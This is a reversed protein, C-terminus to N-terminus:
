PARTEPATWVGVVTKGFRFGLIPDIRRSLPVMLRDWVRIQRATPLPQRLLVRNALSALFGVSDLYFVTAPMTSGTRALLSNRDYRRHHGIAADFASFLFQHAPALVILRGGPSLLGAARRFEGGDDEIHELVDIYLITEFRAETELDAITGCVSRCRPALDRDAAIRNALRDALGPDPELSLWSSVEPNILLPINSGIGGGIEAIRGTIFPTLAAGLYAKWRTAAAFLDLEGGPYAESM